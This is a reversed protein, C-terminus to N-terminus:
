KDHFFSPFLKEYWKKEPKASETGRERYDTIEDYVSRRKSQHIRRDPLGVRRDPRVRRDKTMKSTGDTDSFRRDPNIRRDTVGSRRDLIRRQDAPNDSEPNTNKEKSKTM